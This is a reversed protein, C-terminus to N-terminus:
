MSMWHYDEQTETRDHLAVAGHWSRVGLLKEVMKSFRGDSTSVYCGGMMYGVCNKEVPKVPELHITGFAGEVLKVIKDEPPNELWGDECEIYCTNSKSSLGGNSFDQGENKFIQLSLYKKNEM